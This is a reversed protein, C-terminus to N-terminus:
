PWCWRPPAPPWWPRPWPSCTGGTACANNVNVTPVGTYGMVEETYTGSYIGKRGGWFQSGSVVFGIDKWSVGADKIAEDIADTAMNTWFKEPFKGWPHLGVGIIAIDDM